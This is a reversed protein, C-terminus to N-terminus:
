LIELLQFPPQVGGSSLGGLKQSEPSISSNHHRDPLPQNCPQLTVRLLAAPPRSECRHCGEGRGASSSSPSLTLTHFHSPSFHSLSFINFHSFTFSLFLRFLLLLALSVDTVCGREKAGRRIIIFSFSNFHSFTFSYCTALNVYITAEKEKQM